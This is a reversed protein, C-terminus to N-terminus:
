GTCSSQLPRYGAEQLVVGEEARVRVAQRAPSEQGLVQGDLVLVEALGGLPEVDGPLLGLLDDAEASGEFCTRCVSPFKEYLTVPSVM